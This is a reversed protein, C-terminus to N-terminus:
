TLEETAQDSPWGEREFKERDAHHLRFFFTHIDDLEDLSDEIELSLQQIIGAAQEDDITPALRELAATFNRIRELPRELACAHGFACGQPPAATVAKGLTAELEGIRVDKADCAKRWMEAAGALPLAKENM